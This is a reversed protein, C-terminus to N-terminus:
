LPVLLLSGLGAGEGCGRDEGPVNGPRGRGLGWEGAVEQNIAGAGAFGDVRGDMWGDM